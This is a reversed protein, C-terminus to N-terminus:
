NKLFLEFGCKKEGGGVKPVNRFHFNKWKPPPSCSNEPHHKSFKEYFKPLFFFQYDLNRFQVLVKGLFAILCRNHTSRLLNFISSHSSVQDLFFKVRLAFLFHVSRASKRNQNKGGSIITRRSFVFIFFFCSKMKAGLMSFFDEM